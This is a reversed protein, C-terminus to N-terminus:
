RPGPPLKYYLDAVTPIPPYTLTFRYGRFDALDRGLRDVAVAVMQSYREVRPTALMPPYDGLHSVENGIPLHHRPHECFPLRARGHMLSSICHGPAGEFPLDRHVLLDLLAFEVPTDLRLIHETHTEGPTQHVPLYNRHIWGFVCSLAGTSGVPGEELETITFDGDRVVRLDPLPSSCFEPMLPLADSEDADPDIAETWSGELDGHLFRQGIPWRVDSRLRRYGFVGGVMANDARTDDKRSPAVIQTLTRATAQVGWIASNGHFAQKRSAESLPGAGSDAYTSQVLLEFTTKNGAHQAVVGEFQELAKRVDALITPAPARQEFAKLLIELSGRAPLHTYTQFADPAHITRGIKWSLNRNIQFDRAVRQPSNSDAGTASYLETLSGRLHRMAEEFDTRFDSVTSGTQSDRPM